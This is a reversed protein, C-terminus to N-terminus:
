VKEKEKASPLVPMNMVKTFAAKFKAMEDATGVTIRVHTPWVPWQRGIYVKETTMAKVFDAGPKKVDAMFCNSQSPVFAYNMAQMWAFVDERIDKNIKRRMPVLSKAKLSATAAAMGTIPMNGAGLPKIKELLEPRGFAAGARIGAMGYIKSFTRLIILDKEKSVLDSCTSFNDAFHLYAEDLLVISGLPKNALLWEIDQRSTMTGTPNNPNCVYIVGADPVSAMAHVDHSYDKKLPVKVVKARLYDAAKAGAEYGPDAVVYSRVPSTFALVVRHLPDSSGAFPLVYEPKLGESEALTAVFTDTEDYSYRGGKAVVDHIAQAAEASPGLPNENSNIKVAGPPLPGVKSLQALALNHESYFPFTAGATLLAATRVFMRRSFARGLTFDPKAVEITM